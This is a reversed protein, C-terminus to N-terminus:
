ESAEDLVCEVGTDQGQGSAICVGACMNTFVNQDCVELTIM